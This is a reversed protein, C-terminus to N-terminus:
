TWRWRRWWGTASVKQQPSPKKKSFNSSLITTEQKHITDRLFPSISVITVNPSSAKKMNHVAEFFKFPCIPSTVEFECQWLPDSFSWFCYNEMMLRRYFCAWPTCFRPTV